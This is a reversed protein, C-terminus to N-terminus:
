AEDAPFRVGEVFGHVALNAVGASPVENGVRVVAVGNGCLRVVDDAVGGGAAQELLM